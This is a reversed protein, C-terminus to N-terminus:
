DLPAIALPPQGRRLREWNARLEARHRDRWELVLPLRTPPFSGHVGDADIEISISQAAYRAHFHSRAHDSYYMSIIIGFFRSIEPAGAAHAADAAPADDDAGSRLPRGALVSVHLSEPAWDAGNPWEITEVGLRVRAFEGPDRLAELVPGVLGDALDAEGRVGDSFELWLVHDRVHRVATVRVLEFSPRRIVMQRAYARRIPLTLPNLRARNVRGRRRPLSPQRARNSEDAISDHHGVDGRM